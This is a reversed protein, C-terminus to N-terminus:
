DGDFEGEMAQRAIGELGAAQADRVLQTIPFELPSAFDDYYGVAARNVMEEPAGAEKLVTVLKTSTARRNHVTEPSAVVKREERPNPEFQLFGDGIFSLLNHACNRIIKEDEEGIARGSLCNSEITVVIEGNREVTVSWHQTM